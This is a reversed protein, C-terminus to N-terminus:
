IIRKLLKLLEKDTKIPLIEQYRYNVYARMKTPFFLVSGRGKFLYGGNTEITYEYLSGEPFEYVGMRGGELIMHCYLALRQITIYVRGCRGIESLAKTPSDM